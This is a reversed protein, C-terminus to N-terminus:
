RDVEQPLEFMVSPGAPSILAVALLGLMGVAVAVGAMPVWAVAVAVAVAGALGCLKALDASVERSM